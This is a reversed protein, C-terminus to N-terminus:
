GSRGRMWKMWTSSGSSGLSSVPCAFSCRTRKESSSGDGVTTAGGGRAASWEETLKPTRSGRGSIETEEADHQAVGGRHRRGSVANRRGRRRADAVLRQNPRPSRTPQRTPSADRGMRGNCGAANRSGGHIRATTM